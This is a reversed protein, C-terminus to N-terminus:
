KVTACQKSILNVVEQGYTFGSYCTKDISRVADANGEQSGSTRKITHEYSLIRHTKDLRFEHREIQSSFAGDGSGLDKKFVLVTYNDYKHITIPLPALVEPNLADGISTFFTPEPISDWNARFALPKSYCLNDYKLFATSGQVAFVTEDQFWYQTHSSTDNQNNINSSQSKFVSYHITTTGCLTEIQKLFQAKVVHPYAFYSVVLLALVAYSVLLATIWKKM